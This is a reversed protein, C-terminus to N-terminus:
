KKMNKDTLYILNCLDNEFMGDYNVYASLNTDVQLPLSIIKLVDGMKSIRYFSRILKMNSNDNFAKNSKDLSAKYEKYEESGMKNIQYDLRRKYSEYHSNYRIPLSIVVKIKKINFKKLFNIFFIITALFSMTVDKGNFLDGYSDDVYKNNFKFLMRNLKKSLNNSVNKNKNQIAYVYATDSDIGFYLQPLICENDDDKIKVKFVYPTELLPNVKEIWTYAKYSGFADEEFYDELKYDLFNIRRNLYPIPNSLENSTANIFTYALVSKINDHTFNGEYYFKIAKKVYEILVKKFRKNDTIILLPHKYNFEQKQNEIITAFKITPMFDGIKLNGEVCEPIVEEYFINEIFDDM